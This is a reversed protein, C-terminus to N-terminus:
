APKNEPQKTEQESQQASQQESQQETQQETQQKAEQPDVEQRVIEGQDTESAETESQGSAEDSTEDSVEDNAEDSAEASSATTSEPQSATEAEAAETKATTQGTAGKKATKEAAAKRKAAEQRARYYEGIKLDEKEIHNVMWDRLFAVLERVSPSDGRQHKQLLNQVKQVLVRHAKKQRELYPYGIKAMIAEEGSFHKRVYVALATLVLSIDEKVDKKSMADHLMNLMDIIEKHEEDISPIGTALKETWWILM